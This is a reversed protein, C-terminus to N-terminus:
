AAKAHAEDLAKSARVLIDRLEDETMRRGLEVWQDFLAKHDVTMRTQAPKGGNAVRIAEAEDRAAQAVAAKSPTQERDQLEMQSISPENARAKKAERAAKLRAAVEQAKAEAFVKDINAREEPTYYPYGYELALAKRYEEADPAESTVEIRGSILADVTRQSAHPIVRACRESWTESRDPRGMWEVKAAKFACQASLKLDNARM